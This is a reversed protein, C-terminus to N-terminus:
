QALKSYATNYYIISSTNPDPSKHISVKSNIKLFRIGNQLIQVVALCSSERFHAICMVLVGQHFLLLSTDICMFGSLHQYAATNIM